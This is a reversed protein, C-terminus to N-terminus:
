RISARRMSGAAAVMAHASSARDYPEVMWTAHSARPSSRRAPLMTPAMVSRPCSSARDVTIAAPGHDHRRVRSM